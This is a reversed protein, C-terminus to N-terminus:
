PKVIMADLVDDISYFGIKQIVGTPKITDKGYASNICKAVLETCYLASDDTADFDMDFPTQKARYFEAYAVIERGVVTDRIPFIEWQLSEALFNNLPTKMVEGVFTLESAESHYVFFSDSDRCLIGIHSFRSDKGNLKQFFSSFYGNGLRCIIDGDNIREPIFLTLGESSESPSVMQERNCSNSIFLFFLFLFLIIEREHKSEM